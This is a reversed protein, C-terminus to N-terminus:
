ITDFGVVEQLAKPIHISGDKQQHNELLPILIRPSALATNNLSFCFPKGGDADKYRINLRRCQFDGMISNSMTEGYGNRSPMWTETDYKFLQPEGMEGTCMLMVRYPLELEQLIEESNRQLEEHLVRAEDLNNKALIVQEIKWFEHVRYLGQTDKGYSGAERRYCPSMAVFKLPLDAENYVKNAHYAMMPVEATGALFKDPDNLIYVDDKKAWPFHGTGLLTFEKVIAPAVVPVYGKETLKRFVHWLLALHIHALKNKLFNGRFGSVDSGRQFDILDLDEGLELHTKPTFKFDPLKGWQKIEVNSTEDKGVPVEDLPVNPVHLMLDTFEQDIVKFEEELKRLQEKIKKGEAIAESSPKEKIGSLTNRKTRIDQIQHLLALRKEDLELLRGVDVPRNKNKAAEIVKDKNQRIFDISLM